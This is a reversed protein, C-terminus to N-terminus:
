HGHGIISEIFYSESWGNCLNKFDEFPLWIFKAKMKYKTKLMEIKTNQIETKIKDGSDRPGVTPFSQTSTPDIPGETM